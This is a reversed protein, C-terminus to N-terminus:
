SVSQPKRMWAERLSEPAKRSEADDARGTLALRTACYSFDAWLTAGHRGGGLVGLCDERWGGGEGCLRRPKCGPAEGHSARSARSLRPCASWLTCQVGSMQCPVCQSKRTCCVGLGGRVCIRPPQM